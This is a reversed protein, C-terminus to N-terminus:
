SNNPGKFFSMCKDVKGAVYPQTKDQQEHSTHQELSNLSEALPMMVSEVQKNAIGNIALDLADLLVKRESLYDELSMDYHAHAKALAQLQKSCETINM